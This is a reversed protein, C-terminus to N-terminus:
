WNVFDGFFPVHKSNSSTAFNMTPNGSAGSVGKGPKQNTPKHVPKKRRTRVITNIINNTHEMIQAFTPYNSNTAAILYKRLEGTLKSFVIHSVLKNGGSDAALLDVKYHSKLNYLKNRVRALYQSTTGYDEDFKPQDNVIQKLYEDIM